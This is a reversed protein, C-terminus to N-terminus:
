YNIAKDTLNSMDLVIITEYQRQMPRDHSMFMCQFKYVPGGLNGYRVLKISQKSYLHAKEFFYLSFWVFRKDIAKLTSYLRFTMIYTM